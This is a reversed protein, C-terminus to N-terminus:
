CALERGAREFGCTRRISISNKVQRPLILMRYVSFPIPTQNHLCRAATTSIWTMCALASELPWRHSLELTTAMTSAVTAGSRRCETERLFATQLVAVSCLSTTSWSKTCRMRMQRVRVRGGYGSTCTAVFGGACSGERGRMELGPWHSEGLTIVRNTTLRSV